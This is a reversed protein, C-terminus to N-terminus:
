IRGMGPWFRRWRCCNDGAKVAKHLATDGDLFERNADAGGSLLLLIIDQKGALLNDDTIGDFAATMAALHKPDAGGQLARM